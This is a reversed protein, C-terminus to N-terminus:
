LNRVDSDRIWRVNTTNGLGHVRRCMSFQLAHEPMAVRFRCVLDSTRTRYITNLKQGNVVRQIRVCVSSTPQHGDDVMTRGRSYVLWGVCLPSFLYHIGEVIVFPSLIYSSLVTQCKIKRMCSEGGYPCTGNQWHM